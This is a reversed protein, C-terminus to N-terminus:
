GQTLTAKAQSAGRGTRLVDVTISAPGPDPAWLYHATAALVDGHASGADALALATARAIAALLYGGNPKPGVTFGADVDFDFTGDGVPRVATAADFETTPRLTVTADAM